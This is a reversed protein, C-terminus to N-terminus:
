GSSACAGTSPDSPISGAGAARVSRGRLRGAVSESDGSFSYRPGPAPRGGTRARRHESRQRDHFDIAGPIREDGGRQHRGGAKSRGPAVAPAGPEGSSPPEERIEEAVGLPLTGCSAPRTTDGASPRMMIAPGLSPRHAGGPSQSCTVMKREGISTCMLREGTDPRMVRMSYRGPVNRGANSSRDFSLSSFSIQISWAVAAGDDDALDDAHQRPPNDAADAFPAPRARRACRGSSTRIACPRTGASRRAATRRADPRCTTPPSVTSAVSPAQRHETVVRQRPAPVVLPMAEPAADVQQRRQERDGVQEAAVGADDVGGAASKSM